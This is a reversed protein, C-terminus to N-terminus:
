PTVGKGARERRAKETKELEIGMAWQFRRPGAKMAM